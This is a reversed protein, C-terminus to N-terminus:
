ELFSRLDLLREAEKVVLDILEYDDDEVELGRERLIEVFKAYYPDPKPKTVPEPMPILEAPM